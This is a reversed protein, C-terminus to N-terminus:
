VALRLCGHVGVFDVGVDSGQEGDDELPRVWAIVIVYDDWGLRGLIRARAYVRLAVFIGALVTFSINVGHVTSVLSQYPNDYNPAMPPVVPAIGATTTKATENGVKDTVIDMIEDQVRRVLHPLGELASRAMM